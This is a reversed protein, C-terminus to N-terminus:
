FFIEKRGCEECAGTWVKDDQTCGFGVDVLSENENKMSMFSFFRVDDTTVHEWIELSRQMAQRDNICSRGGHAVEVDRKSVLIQNTM